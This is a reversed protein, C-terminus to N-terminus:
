YLFKMFGSVNPYRKLDVKVNTVRICNATINSDKLQEALWYTYMVQALKSQYYAKGASYSHERFEPDELNVKLNPHMVLGQSAITIIRGQESKRIKPLLLNTLFVPGLHNTAWIIEIGDPSYEAQKRSIDFDAANHILVDIKSIRGNLNKVATLISHRSSLDMQILEVEESKSRDKIEALAQKGRIINRCAILVHIGETALQIAAAKGIGANAGTLLCVKQEKEQNIQEKESM